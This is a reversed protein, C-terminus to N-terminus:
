PHPAVGGPKAVMLAVALLPTALAVLGWLELAFLVISWAIWPTHLIPYHGM